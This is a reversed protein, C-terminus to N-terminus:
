CGYAIKDILSNFEALLKNKDSGTLKVNQWTPNLKQAIINLNEIEFLINSLDEYLRIKLDIREIVDGFEVFYYAKPRILPERLGGWISRMISLLENITYARLNSWRGEKLKINLSNIAAFTENDILDRCVVTNERANAVMDAINLTHNGYVAVALFDSANKYEIPEGFKAFLKKGDEFDRDIVYDYSQEYEKLMTEARQLYRGIWYLNTASNFSLYSM